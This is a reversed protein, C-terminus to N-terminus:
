FAPLSVDECSAEDQQTRDTSSRTIAADRGPVSERSCSMTWGARINKRLRTVSGCSHLSFGAHKAAEPRFLSAEDIVDSEADNM